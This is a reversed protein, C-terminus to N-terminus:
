TVPSVLNQTRRAGGFYSSKPPRPRIARWRNRTPSPSPTMPWAGVVRADYLMSYRTFPFRVRDEVIAIQGPEM